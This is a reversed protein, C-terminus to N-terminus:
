QTTSKSSKREALPCRHECEKGQGKGANGRQSTWTRMMKMRKKTRRRTMKTITTKMRRKTMRGMRTMRMMIM